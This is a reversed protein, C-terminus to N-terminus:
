ATARMKCGSSCSPRWPQALDRQGGCVPGHVARRRDARREAVRRAAGLVAPRLAHLGLTRGCHLCRWARRGVAAAAVLGHAGGPQGMRAPPRSGAAHPGVGPGRSSLTDVRPAARRNARGALRLGPGSARGRRGCDFLGRRSGRSVAVALPSRSAVGMRVVGACAPGCMAVCHPGGALGMLLAAAALTTSMPGPTESSARSDRAIAIPRCIATSCWRSRACSTGARAPTVQIGTADITSWARSRSHRAAARNRGRLVRPFGAALHAARDIRVAIQGQCM